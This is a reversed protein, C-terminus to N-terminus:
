PNCLPVIAKKGNTFTVLAITAGATASDNYSRGAAFAGRASGLVQFGQVKLSGFKSGTRLLQRIYGDSGVGWLGTNNTSDIGPGAIKATFLPTAPNGPPMVFSTLATFKASTLFAGANPAKNGTREVLILNGFTGYWLGKNNASTVKNGKLTALFGVTGSTTSAPDLFGAFKAPTTGTGPANSNERAIEFLATNVGTDARYLLVSDNSTSVGGFGPAYKAALYFFGSTSSMTPLGFSAWKGGSVATNTPLAGASQVVGSIVGASTVSLIAKAGSVFEARAVISSTAQWRGQDPSGPAPALVSLKSIASNIGLASITQSTRLYQVNGGPRIGMLLSDNTADIGTGSLSLLVVLTGDRISISKIAKVLTTSPYGTIPVPKGKQLVSTLTGGIDSFLASNQTDPVGTLSATFALTGNGSVVPDLFAGYKAGAIGPAAQKQLAPFFTPGNGSYVIGATTTTGVKFSAKAAFAGGDSLAPTGLSSLVATKPVGSGVIGAGPAPEGTMLALRQYKITVFETLGTAGNPNNRFATGTIAVNGVTDVSIGLPTDDGGGTRSGTFSQSWLVAGTAGSYCATYYDDDHNKPQQSTGTVIVNDAPDIAIARPIDEDDPSASTKEWLVSSGTAAYKALYFRKPAFNTNDVTVAAIIACGASDAVVGAPTTFNDGPSNYTHTWTINGTAAAYKITFTDYDVGNKVRGITYVNGDADAAVGYPDHDSTNGSAPYLKEFVSTGNSSNLRATFFKAGSSETVLGCLGLNGTGDLALGRPVDKRNAPNFTRQWPSVATTTGSSANYRIVVINEQTGSDVSSAAVYVNNSNDVVVYLGEDAAGNADYTGEWIVAGDSARYKVTYADSDSGSGVPAGGTVIVNGAGDCAIARALANSLGNGAYEVQWLLSGDNGAYKATYFHKINNVITFGTVAVNGRPDTAVAVGGQSVGSDHDFRTLWAQSSKEARAPLALGALVTILLPRLLHPLISRFAM